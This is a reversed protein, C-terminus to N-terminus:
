YNKRYRLLEKQIKAIRIALFKRNISCRANKAKGSDRLNGDKLDFILLSSGKEREEYGKM